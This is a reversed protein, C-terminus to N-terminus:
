ESGLGGIFIGEKRIENLINALKRAGDYLVRGWIEALKYCKKM